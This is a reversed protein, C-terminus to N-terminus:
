PEGDSCYPLFGGLDATRIVCQTASLDNRLLRTTPMVVSKSSSKIGAVATKGRAGLMEKLTVPPRYEKLLDRFAEVALGV